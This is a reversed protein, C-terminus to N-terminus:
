EESIVIIVYKIINKFCNLIISYLLIFFWPSLFDGQSYLTNETIKM